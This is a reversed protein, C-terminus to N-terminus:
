VPVPLLGQDKIAFILIAPIWILIRPNVKYPLSQIKIPQGVGKSFTNIDTMLDRTKM